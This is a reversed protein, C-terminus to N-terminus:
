FSVNAPQTVKLVSQDGTRQKWATRIAEIKANNEATGAYDIV